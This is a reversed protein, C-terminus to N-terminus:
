KDTRELNYCCKGFHHENNEMTGLGRVQVQNGFSARLFLVLWASNSGQESGPGESVGPIWWLIIDVPRPEQCSIEM